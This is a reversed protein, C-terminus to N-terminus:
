VTDLICATIAYKSFFSQRENDTTLSRERGAFNLKIKYNNRVNMKQGGLFPRPIKPKNGAIRLKERKANPKKKKQLTKKQGGLTM